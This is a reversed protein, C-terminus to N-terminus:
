AYIREAILKGCTKCTFYEVGRMQTDMAFNGDITKHVTLVPLGEQTYEKVHHHRFVVWLLLLILAIILYFMM